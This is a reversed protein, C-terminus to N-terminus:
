PGVAEDFGAVAQWLGLYRGHVREDHVLSTLTVGAGIELGDRDDVRLLETVGRLGVVTSPVQQRRKMNPILDTGGALLMTDGPAEALWAAADQVTKPARYRYSPLRMM